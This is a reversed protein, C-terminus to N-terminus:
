IVRNVSVSTLTPFRKKAQKKASEVAKTSDTQSTLFTEVRCAGNAFNIQMTVDLTTTM